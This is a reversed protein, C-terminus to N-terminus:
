WNQKEWDTKLLGLTVMNLRQGNILYKGRALGERVFGFSEDWAIQKANTAIVKAELREIGLKTFALKILQTMAIRGYQAHRDERHFITAGVRAIRMYPDVEHLGVTGVIRDDVVVLYILSGEDQKRKLYSREEEETVDNQLQAFNKLEAGRMAEVLRKADDPTALLLKFKSNISTQM